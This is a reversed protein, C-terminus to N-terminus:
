QPVAVTTVLTSAPPAAPAPAPAPAAAQAPGTAAQIVQAVDGFLAPAREALKRKVVAEVTDATLKELPKAIASNDPCVLMVLGAVAGGVIAWPPVGGAIQGAASAGLVALGHISTPQMLWKKITELM